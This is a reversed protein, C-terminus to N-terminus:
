IAPGFLKKRFIYLVILWEVVPIEMTFINGIPAQFLIKTLEVFCFVGLISDSNRFKSAYFELLFCAFGWFFFSGWYGFDFYLYPMASSVTVLFGIDESKLAIFQETMPTKFWKGMFESKGYELEFSGDPFNALTMNMIRSGDTFYLFKEVFIQTSINETNNRIVGIISFSVVFVVIITFIKKQETKSIRLRKQNKQWFYTIFYILLVTLIWGRGAIAMNTSALMFADKVFRKIEIGSYAHRYGLLALYFSGLITAHGSFRQAFAGYGTMKLSVAAMRYDGLNDFGITEVLYFTQLAGLFLCIYLIWHYKSLIKDIFALSLVKSDDYITIKRTHAVEFGVISSLVLGCIFPAVYDYSWAPNLNGDYHGTKGKITLIILVSVILWAFTHVSCPLLLRYSRKRFLFFLYLICAIVTTELVLITQM